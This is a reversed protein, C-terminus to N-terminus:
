QELDTETFADASPQGSMQNLIYSRCELMEQSRIGNKVCISLASIVVAIRDDGLEINWKMLESTRDAM